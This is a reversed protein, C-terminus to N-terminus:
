REKGRERDMEYVTKEALCMIRCNRYQRLPWFFVISHLSHWAKKGRVGFTLGRPYNYLGPLFYYSYPVLLWDSLASGFKRQRSRQLECFLGNILRMKEATILFKIRFACVYTIKRVNERKRVLSLANSIM